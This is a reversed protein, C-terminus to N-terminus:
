GVELVVVVEVALFAAFGEVDFAAGSIEFGHKWLAEGERAVLDGEVAFAGVAGSMERAFRAFIGGSCSHGPPVSSFCSCDCLGAPGATEGDTARTRAGFSCAAFFGAHEVCVLCKM